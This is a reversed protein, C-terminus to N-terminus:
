VGRLTNECAMCFGAVSNKIFVLERERLDDPLSSFRLLKDQSMITEMVDRIVCDDLSASEALLAFIMDSWSDLQKKALTILSHDRTAGWHSYILTEDGKLCSEIKNISLAASQLNFVPPTTPRLYVSGPLPLSVGAAEGLFFVNSGNLSLAFCLHHGAHGPTEITDIGEAGTMMREKPLPIPEKYMEAIDGLTELSGKWLKAPEALHRMGKPHVVVRADKYRECVQGIGGSHDLHIHTLLVLDIGDTLKSLSDLLVPVSCAPGPDVLVRRGLSDTFFWASIFFRYGRREMPLEILRLGEPLGRLMSEVADTVAKNKAEDTM